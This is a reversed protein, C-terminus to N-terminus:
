PRTSRCSRRGPCGFAVEVGENEIVKVVADMVDM